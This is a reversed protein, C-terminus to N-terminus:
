ETVCVTLPVVLAAPAPTAAGLSIGVNDPLRDAIAELPMANVYLGVLVVAPVVNAHLREATLPTLLEAAFPEPAIESVNTFVVVEGTLTM